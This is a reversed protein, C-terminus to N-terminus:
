MAPLSSTIVFASALPKFVNTPVNEKGANIKKDMALSSKEFTLQFKRNATRMALANTKKTTKISEIMLVFGGLKPREARNAIKM